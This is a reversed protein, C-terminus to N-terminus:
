RGVIPALAAAILAVADGEGGRRCGQRTSRAGVTSFFGGVVMLSCGIFIFACVVNTVAKSSAPQATMSVRSEGGGPWTWHVRPPLSMQTISTVTLEQVLMTALGFSTHTGGLSEPSTMHRILLGPCHFNVPLPMVNRLGCWSKEFGRPPPLTTNRQFLACLTLFLDCLYVMWTVSPRCVQSWSGDIM